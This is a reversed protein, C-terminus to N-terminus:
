ANSEVATRRQGRLTAAAIAVALALAVANHAYRAGPDVGPVAPAVFGVVCWALLAGAALAAAEDRGWRTARSWRRVLVAAVTVVALVLIMGLWSPPCLDTGLKAAAAGALLLAPTPAVSDARPPVPAGARTTALWVLLGAVAFAGLLQPV